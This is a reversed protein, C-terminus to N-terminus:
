CDQSSKLFNITLFNEMKLMFVLEVDYFQPQWWDFIVVSKKQTNEAFGAGLKSACM